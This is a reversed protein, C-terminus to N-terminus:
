KLFKLGAIIKETQLIYNEYKAKADAGADFYLHTYVIYPKKYVAYMVFFGDKSEVTIYEVDNTGIKKKKWLDITSEGKSEIFYFIDTMGYSTGYMTNKWGRKTPPLKQIKALKMKDRISSSHEFYERNSAEIFDSKFTTFDIASEEVILYTSKYNLSKDEYYFGSTVPDATTNGAGPKVISNKIDLYPVEVISKDDTKGAALTYSTVPNDYTKTLIRKGSDYTPETVWVKNYEDYRKTEGTKAFVKVIVEFQSSVARGSKADECFKDMDEKKTTYVVTKKDALSKVEGPTIAWSEPMLRLFSSYEKSSADTKYNWYACVLVKDYNKVEAPIPIKLTIDTMEGCKLNKILTKGDKGFAFDNQAPLSITAAALICISLFTVKKM